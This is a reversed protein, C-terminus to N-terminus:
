RQIILGLLISRMKKILVISELLIIEANEYKKLEEIFYNKIIMADFTYEETDFVGDCMNAKFYKLPNVDECKIGAAKSFKRFQEASTWSYEKSTAYIKLFDDNVSFDFDKNFRDFYKASKIATSYSRPYHYGNHVRAQNIYTARSIAEEDYELVTVKERKKACYLAAYLGYIGAGIIVKDRQKM